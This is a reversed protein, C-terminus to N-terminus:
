GQSRSVLPGSPFSSLQTRPRARSVLSRATHSPWTVAGRQAMSKSVLAMLCKILVLQIGLAIKLIMPIALFTLCSGQRPPKPPAMRYINFIIPYPIAHQLPEPAGFHLLQQLSPATLFPKRSGPGPTQRGKLLMMRQGVGVASPNQRTHTEGRM